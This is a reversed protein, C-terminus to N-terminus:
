ENHLENLIELEHNMTFVLGEKGNNSKESMFDIPHDDEFIEYYIEWHQDHEFFGIGSGNFLEIKVKNTGKKLYPNLNVKLALKPTGDIIKSDYILSDGVYVKARNDIKSFLIFYEPPTPREQFLFFSLLTAILM